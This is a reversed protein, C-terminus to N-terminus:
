IKDAFLTPRQYAKILYLAGSPEEHMLEFGRNTFLCHITLSTAQVLFAKTNLSM